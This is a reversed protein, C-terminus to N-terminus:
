YQSLNSIILTTGLGWVRDGNWGFESKSIISGETGYFSGDHDTILVKRRSDCDMDVCDAPNIWRTIPTHHFIKFDSLRSILFSYKYNEVM